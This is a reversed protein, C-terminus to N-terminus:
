SVQNESHGNFPFKIIFCTGKAPESKVEIKGHHSEVIGYVVALGLGVSKEGNKTSFFPEFIHPLVDTDIGEGNDEIEVRFLKEIQNRSIRLQLLGGNKPCAEVANVLLAVFMQEIAAADCNLTTDADSYEKHIRINKLELSHHILDLSKDMLDKLDQRSIRGLSKKSFILLNKVINGCRESEDRIVVLNKLAEAITEASSSQKLNRILLKAYTLVGSLPNNIEHAVVAALKGMSALKEASILQKQARELEESKKRVRDELTNSWEQLQQQAQKLKDTMKNFSTSLKEMEEPSKIDIHYDLNLNAVQETGYVLKSIPLKIQNHIIREFIILTLATVFLFSLLSKKRADATNEDLRKLSTRIDLLGLIKEEEGHAHCEAQYCDPANEIPIILGLVRHSNESECMRFQNEQYITGKAQSSPHCFICQEDEISVTHHIEASDGSFMITGKKNYIRVGEIYRVKTLDEMIAALDDRQNKLMSVRTSKKILNSAQLVQDQICDEMRNNFYHVNIYNIIILILVLYLSLLFLLRFNIRRNLAFTKKM